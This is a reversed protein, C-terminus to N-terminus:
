RFVIGFSIQSFIFFSGGLGGFFPSFSSKIGETKVEVLERRELKM